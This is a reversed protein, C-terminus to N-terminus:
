FYKKKKQAHKTIQCPKNAKNSIIHKKKNHKAHYHTPSKILRELINPQKIRGKHAVENFEQKPISRRRTHVMFSKRHVEGAKAIFFIEKWLIKFIGQSVKKM